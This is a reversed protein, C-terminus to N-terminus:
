AVSENVILASDGLLIDLDLMTVRGNYIGAVYDLNSVGKSPMGTTLRSPLYEDSGLMEDVLLGVLMKQSQVVLIAAKDDYQNDGRAKFFHKLDLVTLMQGRRNTVGYIHAPTCPVKTVANFPLIEEAHRYLIGYEEADGLRFRIYPLKQEDNEDADLNKAFIEARQDLILKDEINQPMPDESDRSKKNKSM